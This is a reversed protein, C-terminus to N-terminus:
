ISGFYVNFKLKLLLSIWERYFLVRWSRYEPANEGNFRYWLYNEWSRNFLQLARNNASWRSMKNKVLYEELAHTRTLDIHSCCSPVVYRAINRKSAHGSLWIDDVHRIDNPVQNFDAYIDTNFFSPRILYAANATIIGVRYVESIFYSEIIHYAMEYKGAVGWTLDDRIRWGRLGIISNPFQHSYEMLTSLTFPHYYYDDDCIMVTQSKSYFEKIISLFKTAPGYDEEELRIQVLRDFLRAISKSSDLRQVSLKLHSLTLNKHKIIEFTPSLYIRIQKPLQKQSLLSHIALPLEGHFRAPTSTLSIIVGSLDSEADNLQVISIAHFIVFLFSSVTLLFMIRIYSRYISRWRSPKLSSRRYFSRLYYRIM